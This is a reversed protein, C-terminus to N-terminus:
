HSSRPEQLNMPFRIKIVKVNFIWNLFPHNSGLQVLIVCIKNSVIIVMMNGCYCSLLQLFLFIIHQFRIMLVTIMDCFVM